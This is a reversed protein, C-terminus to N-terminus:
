EGPLCQWIGGMVELSKVVSLVWGAIVVDYEVFNVTCYVHLCSTAIFIERVLHKGEYKM